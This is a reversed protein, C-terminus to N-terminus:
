RDSGESVVKKHTLIELSENGHNFILDTVSLYPVFEGYLQHYTPHSYNHFQVEIGHEQFESAELYNAAANGTLYIDAGLKLCVDVLRATRKGPVNLASSFRIDRKLELKEALAYIFTMDLDILHKWEKGLIEEFLPFYPDFFPAKGYSQRIASLHKRAWNVKNNILIDGILQGEQNKTLVPVTLWAIGNATKIRNRNRWGGKDFQVDDYIVFIDSKYLQDFFGLWPLYGPQLVVVRM